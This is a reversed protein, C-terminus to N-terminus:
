KRKMVCDTYIFANGGYWATFNEFTINFDDDYHAIVPETESNASAFTYYTGWTAPKFTITRSLKDVEGINEDNWGYFNILKIHTDDVQRVLVEDTRNVDQKTYDDGFYDYGKCTATYTGVLDNAEGNEEWGWEFEDYAGAGVQGDADYLIAWFWLNGKSGTEDAYFFSHGDSCFMDLELVSTVNVIHFGSELPYGYPRMEYENKDNMEIMFNISYGVAGYPNEISYTGDDYAVIEAEFKNEGDPLNKMTYTGTHRWLVNRVREFTFQFPESDSYTEDDSYAVITITRQGLELGILTVSNTTTTGSVGTDLSYRYGSAHEVAPWTVTVGGNGNATTASSVSVLPVQQSTTAKLVAIPSTTKDSNLATFAWVKLTYETNAKLGTAVLSTTQTVDATIVHDFADVLEYAYQTADAVPDWHFALSSVTQGDQSITPMQLPTKEDDDSCSTFSVLAFLAVALMTGLRSIISKDYKM